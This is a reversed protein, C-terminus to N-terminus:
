RTSSRNHPYRGANDGALAVSACGKAIKQKWEARNEQVVTGFRREREDFTAGETVHRKKGNPLGELVENVCAILAAKHAVDMRAIRGETQGQLVETVVTRFDAAAAPPGACSVALGVLAVAARFRTM